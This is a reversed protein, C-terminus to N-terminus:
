ATVVSGGSGTLSALRYGLEPNISGSDNTFFQEATRIREDGRVVCFAQVYAPKQQIAHPNIEYAKFM